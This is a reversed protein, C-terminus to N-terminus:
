EDLVQVSSSSSSGVQALFKEAREQIKRAVTQIRYEDIFIEDGNEAFLLEASRGLLRMEIYRLGWIACRFCCGQHRTTNEIVFGSTKFFLARIEELRMNSTSISGLPDYYEVNQAKLDIYIVVHHGMNDYPIAIDTILPKDQVLAYISEAIEYPTKRADLHTVGDHSFVFKDKHELALVKMYENVVTCSFFRWHNNYLQSLAAYADQTEAVEVFRPNIVVKRSFLSAAGSVFTSALRAITSAAANPATRDVLLFDAEKAVM